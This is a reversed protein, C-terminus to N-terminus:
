SLVAELLGETSLRAYDEPRDIDWLAPLEVCHVGTEAFRARTQRLVRDTSWDVGEFLGPVPASLGILVYGGDEAPVLVAPADRLAAAAERLHDASLAPCDSGVVILARRHAFSREFALRMREGLDGGRQPLLTVHFREACRLFFPDRDDPAGHLEVPGVGAAVATSLVHRVLGAHLAAAGEAGLLGQLRTKVEGPIPAKAFIAVSIPDPHASSGM